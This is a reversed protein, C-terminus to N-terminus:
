NCLLFHFLEKCSFLLLVNLAVDGFCVSFSVTHGVRWDMILLKMCKIHSGMGLYVGVVLEHESLLNEGV